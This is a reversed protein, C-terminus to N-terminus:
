PPLPYLFVGRFLSILLFLSSSRSRGQRAEPSSRVLPSGQLSGKHRDRPDSAPPCVPRDLDRISKPPLPPPIEPPEVHVSHLQFRELFFIHYPVFSKFYFLFPLLSLSPLVSVSEEASPNVTRQDLRSWREGELSEDPKVVQRETLTKARMAEFPFDEFFQLRIKDEPFVLSKLPQKVMPRIPAPPHSLLAAHWVPPHGVGAQVLRQSTQLVTFASRRVM